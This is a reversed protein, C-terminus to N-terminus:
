LTWSAVITAVISSYNSYNSEFHARSVRARTLHVKEPKLLFDHKQQGRSIKKKFFVVKNWHLILNNFYELM